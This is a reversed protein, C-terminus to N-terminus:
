QTLESEYHVDSVRIGSVALSAPLTGNTYFTEIRYLGFPYKKRLDESISRVVELSKDFGSLDHRIEIVKHVVGGGVSEVALYTTPVNQAEKTKVAM